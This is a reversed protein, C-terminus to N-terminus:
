DDEQASQSAAQTVVNEDGQVQSDVNQCFVNLPLKGNGCDNVQSTAQNYERKKGAFADQTALASTAILMTAVAAIVAMSMSKNNM